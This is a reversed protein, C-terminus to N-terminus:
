RDKKEIRDVEKENELSSLIAQAFGSDIVAISVIEVRGICQGLETRAFSRHIKVQYYSCKDHIKKYTAASADNAIL